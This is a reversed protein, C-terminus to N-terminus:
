VDRARSMLRLINDLLRANDAEGIAINAFVADDGVVVVRGKGVTRVGVLGMAATESAERTGNRDRDVWAGDATRVALEAGPAAATVPWGSLVLVQRVGETLPGPVVQDAILIGADSQGPLPEAGQMVFPEVPLGWHAPVAFVPFPVHITLLVTGGDEAFSTVADYEDGILPSMPGALVLGSAGALTQSTIRSRSILVNFGANRMREVAQSQGLETADEAGFIEGHSMDFVITGAKPARTPAPPAVPQQQTCAALLVLAGALATALIRSRRM